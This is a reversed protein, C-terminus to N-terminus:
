FLFGLRVYALTGETSHAAEVSLVALNFPTFWVGGGYGNHWLSSKGGASPDIGSDDEYWVRGVDEFALIGLSAPFLYSRINALKIRMELNSFAKSDGYFRTKRYGRLETKGDLIQAQYFEYGGFNHGGGIRWAFVVRAPLRFSQYFTVDGELAGFSSARTDLGGIAKGSLNVMIGRTTLLPHNRKDLTYQANVGAYTNVEEFLPYPLTPAYEQDIFRNHDSPEEMELRQLVPGIRFRGSAGIPRSIAAELRLEEFRFRYYAIASPTNHTKDAERDFVTENGLGFFNNVYNPEKINFGLDLDWLGIAQTFKGQYLFNYSGTLPAVTALFMHRTMFPTKRFGNSISMFGGGIFVGDDPNYNGFVLPILKNYKFARRDYANVNPDNSTRDRVHGQAISADGTRDYLLTQRAGASQDSVVDKGDGGIIRITIKSSEGTLDIRDNGGQAYFRV